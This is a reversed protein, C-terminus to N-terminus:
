ECSSGFASVLSIGNSSITLPISATPMSVGALRAYSGSLRSLVTFMDAEGDVHLIM